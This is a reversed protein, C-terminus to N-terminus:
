NEGDKMKQTEKKFCKERLQKDSRIYGALRQERDKLKSKYWFGMVLWTVLFATALWMFLAM